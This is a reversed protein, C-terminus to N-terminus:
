MKGSVKQKGNLFRGIIIVIVVFLALCVLVVEHLMLDSNKLVVNQISLWKLGGLFLVSIGIAMAFIYKVPNGGRSFFRELGSNIATWNLFLGYVAFNPLFAINLIMMTSFHFLVAICLFIKFLRAKWVAFLFGTEFIVTSWDLVEWFFPHDTKLAASALLAQRGNEFYQNLLHGQTAQTAPDLWGGLIKPFGATFMMFALFLSLLTVPWTQISRDSVQRGYLDASYAAGWNSFAMALPVVGILIEHNVKGISFIGGQLLIIAFGAIISVKQTLFGFLLAVSSLIITLRLIQFYLLPAYGDLLRLPGPPPNYFDAPITSLFEYHQAGNGPILFFLLFGAFLIRFIGFGEPTGPYSHFIWHDFSSSQKM